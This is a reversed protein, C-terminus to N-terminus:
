VTLPMLKSCCFSGGAQTDGRLCLWVLVFSNGPMHNNWIHQRQPPQPSRNKESRSVVACICGIHGKRFVLSVPHSLCVTTVTRRLHSSPPPPSAVLHILSFEIRMDPENYKWCRLWYDCVGAQREGGERERRSNIFLLFMMFNMKGSWIKLGALVM